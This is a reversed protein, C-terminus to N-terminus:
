AVRRLVHRAVLLVLHLRFTSDEEDSLGPHAGAPHLRRFFAEIFGKGQGDWENLGQFFFPPQRQALWIRRQGGPPPLTTGRALREAIEDFLSEIFPRLQGNAAAWARPSQAAIGQDLHGKAVNFNYCKLLLHVEDDAAPLDIATPLTRRLTGDVVVFGDRALAAQLAPYRQAFVDASFGQGWGGDSRAVAENVLATVIADTLNQGDESKARPTSILYSALHNTRDARSTGTLQDEIGYELAFRSLDTHGQQALVDLAALITRRSFHSMPEGSPPEASELSSRVGSQLKTSIPLASRSSDKNQLAPVPALSTRLTEVVRRVYTLAPSDSYEYEADNKTTSLDHENYASWRRVLEARGQPMRAAEFLILLRDYADALHMGLAGAPNDYYGRGSPPHQGGFVEIQVQQRAEEAEAVIEELKAIANRVITENM